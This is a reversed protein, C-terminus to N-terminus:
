VGAICRVHLVCAVCMRCSICCSSKVQLNVTLTCSKVNAAGLEPRLISFTWKPGRLWKAQFNVPFISTNCIHQTHAAHTNCQCAWVFWVGSSPFYFFAHCACSNYTAPALSQFSLAKSRCYIVNHHHGTADVKTPNDCIMYFLGQCCDQTFKVLQHHDKADVKIPSDCIVSACAKVIRLNWFSINDCRHTHTQSSRCGCTYWCCKLFFCLITVM